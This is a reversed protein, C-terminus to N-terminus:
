KGLVPDIKAAADCLEKVANISVDFNSKENNELKIEVIKEVGKKGITVPVGAYIDKYGYEGNLYAACPLIKKQDKIFSEAMEVGSAAPAYFASGKELLKVIEAGGKRTREIIADLKNKSIKNDKVLDTLIKNKIKTQKPMPVMTDGHGGLVM